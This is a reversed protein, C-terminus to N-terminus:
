FGFAMQVPRAARVALYAQVRALRATRDEVTTVADQAASRAVRFLWSHVEKKTLYCQVERTEASAVVFKASSKKGTAPIAILDSNGVRLVSVGEFTQWTPNFDMEM